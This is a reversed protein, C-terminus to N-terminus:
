DDWGEIESDIENIIRRWLFKNASQQRKALNRLSRFRNKMRKNEFRLRKLEDFESEKEKPISTTTYHEM